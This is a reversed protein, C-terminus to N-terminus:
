VSRRPPPMEEEPQVCGHRPVKLLNAPFLFHMLPFLKRPHDPIATRLKSCVEAGREVRQLLPTGSGNRKSM